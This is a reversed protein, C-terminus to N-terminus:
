ADLFNLELWARNNVLGETKIRGLLLYSYETGVPFSPSFTRIGGGDISASLYRNVVADALSPPLPPLSRVMRQATRWHNLIMADWFRMERDEAADHPRIEVNLYRPYEKGYVRQWGDPVNDFNLDSTRSFDWRVVTESASTSRTPNIGLGLLCFAVLLSRCIALTHETM